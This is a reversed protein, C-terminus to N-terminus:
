RGSNDALEMIKSRFVQFSKSQNKVVDLHPAIKTALSGKLVGILPYGQPKAKEYERPAVAEAPKEWTGCVSDQQYANLVSQRADPYAAVVANRDGLLWAEMEEIAIRFFANPAPDCSRLVGMLENKFAHCDRKDLDAVIIVAHPIALLSKGYGKLMRPLQDLLLRKHADTRPKLRKPIHGAGKYPKIRYSNAQQDTGLIKKLAAEVIVKGSADEVLVEFHM